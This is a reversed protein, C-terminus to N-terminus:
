ANLPRLELKHPGWTCHHDLRFPHDKKPNIIYKGAYGRPGVHSTNHYRRTPMWEDIQFEDVYKEPLTENWPIWRQRISVEAVTPDSIDKLYDVLTGRYETTTLREDLDILAVWESHGRARTLCEQLQPMQWMLGDRIFRDRLIIVEADGTRVYDDILMRSYEEIENIYIYFYTVGQIKHHEIFESLLLWKPKAGYIPALCASFYHIPVHNTRDIIPVPYEYSENSTDTLSIYKAGKRRLCHVNFEPFVVTKFSPGIEKRQHNFYRCYITDKETRLHEVLEFKLPIYFLSAKYIPGMYIKEYLEKSRIVCLVLAM